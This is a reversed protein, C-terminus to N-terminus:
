CMFCASLINNQSINHSLIITHNCFIKNQNVLFLIDILFSYGKLCVLPFFVDWLWKYVSVNWTFKYDYLMYIIQNTAWM